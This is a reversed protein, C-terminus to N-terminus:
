RCAGCLHTGHIMHYEDDDYVEQCHGCVAKHVPSTKDEPSTEDEPGHIIHWSLKFAEITANVWFFFIGSIAAAKISTQLANFKRM